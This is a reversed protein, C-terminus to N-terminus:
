CNLSHTIKGIKCRKNCENESLFNNTNGNCGTYNFLRCEDKNIDYYYRSIKEYCNGKEIDQLCPSVRRNALSASSIRNPAKELFTNKVKFYNKNKIFVM